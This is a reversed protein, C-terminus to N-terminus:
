KMFREPLRYTLSVYVREHSEEDTRAGEEQSWFGHAYAADIRLSEDLEKGLGLTLFDKQNVADIIPDDYNDGRPGKFVVPQRIYGIRGVAGVFPLRQEFGLRVELGSRYKDSFYYPDYENDFEANRWNEYVMDFAALSRGPTGWAVGLGFQMPANIQYSVDSYDESDLYDAGSVPDIAHHVNFFYGDNRSYLEEYNNQNIHFTMPLRAFAGLRFNKDFYLISPKVSWASIDDEGGTIDLWSWSEEQADYNRLLRNDIRYSGKWIDLSLGLSVNPSVDVAGALSIIGLGGEESIDQIESGPWTEGGDVFAYENYDSLRFRGSFDKVRNYAAALVLSGRETPVPYAIGITGLGLYDETAKGNGNATASRLGSDIKRGISLVGLHFEFSRIRALAAPNNIVATVDESAAIQAGGMGLSRAGVTVANDTVIEQTQVPGPFGIAAALLIIGAAKRRINTM